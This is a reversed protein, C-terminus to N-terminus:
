LLKGLIALDKEVGDLEAVGPLYGWQEFGFKEFLRLSPDNHAFIFGVLRKIGLSPCQTIAFSLLKSGVGIGRSEPSVYISVEVTGHYAPRGYFSQFSLWGLIRDDEMLVWLPREDKHEHFWPMRSEVTVPETDATAVRGAITSNYIDVIDPLDRESAKRIFMVVAM